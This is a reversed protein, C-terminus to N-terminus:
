SSNLSNKLKSSGCMLCYCCFQSSTSQILCISKTNYIIHEYLISRYCTLVQRLVALIIHDAESTNSRTNRQFWGPYKHTSKSERVQWARTQPFASSVRIVGQSDTYWCNKFIKSLFGNMWHWQLVRSFYLKNRKSFQLGNEFRHKDNQIAHSRAASLAKKQWRESLKTLAVLTAERCSQVM